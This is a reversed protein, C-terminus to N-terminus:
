KKRRKEFFKKIISSCEVELVGGRIEPFHNLKLERAKKLIYIGGSERPNKAGFIVRQLRANVIAGACMICPEVTIYIFCDPLRYNKKLRCAARIAVIEAHATPDSEGACRNHARALIEGENTVIVAGVPVEEDDNSKEAEELALKMFYEDMM